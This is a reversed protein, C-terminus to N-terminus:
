ARGSPCHPARVEVPTGQLEYGSFGKGRHIWNEPISGHYKQLAKEWTQKTRKIYEPKRLVKSATITDESLRRNIINRWSAKTQEATHETGRVCRECRMTWILYAAESVLIKLLRTAGNDFTQPENQNPTPHTRPNTQQKIIQPRRMRNDNRPILNAM